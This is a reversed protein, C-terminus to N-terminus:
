HVNEFIYKQITKLGLTDIINRIYFINERETVIKYNWCINFELILSKLKLNSSGYVCNILLLNILSLNKIIVMFVINILLVILKGKPKSFPRRHQKADTMLVSFWDLLRNAMAPKSAPSCDEDKTFDMDYAPKLPPLSTKETIENSTFEKDDYRKM